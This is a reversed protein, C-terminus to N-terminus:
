LSIAQDLPIGSWSSCRLLTGGVLPRRLYFYARFNEILVFYLSDSGVELSWSLCTHEEESVLLSLPTTTVGGGRMVVLTSRM